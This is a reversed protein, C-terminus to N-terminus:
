TITIAANPTPFGTPVVVDSPLGGPSPSPNNVFYEMFRNFLKAKETLNENSPEISSVDPALSELQSFLVKAQHTMNSSEENSANPALESMQSNFVKARHTINDPM